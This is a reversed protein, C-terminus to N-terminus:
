TGPLALFARGGSSRRRLGHGRLRLVPPRSFPPPLLLLLPALVVVTALLVVMVLGPMLQVAVPLTVGVVVVV